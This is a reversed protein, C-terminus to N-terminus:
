IDKNIAKNHLNMHCKHCLTLLKDHNEKDYKHVMKIRNKGLMDEALHHVDLRREGEKWKYGCIRCTHNDRIRVFERERDRSNAYYFQTKM